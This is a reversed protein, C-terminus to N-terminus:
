LQLRISCEHLSGLFSLQVLATDLVGKAVTAPQKQDREREGSEPIVEGMSQRPALSRKQATLPQFRRARTCQAQVREWCSDTRGLIEAQVKGHRRRKGKWTIKPELTHVFM